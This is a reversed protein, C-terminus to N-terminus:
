RVEIRAELRLRECFSIGPGITLDKRVVRLALVRVGGLPGLHFRVMTKQSDLLRGEM